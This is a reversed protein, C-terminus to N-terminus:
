SRSEKSVPRVCILSSTLFLGYRRIYRRLEGYSIYYQKGWSSVSLVCSGSSTYFLGTITVFHAHVNQNASPLLHPLRGPAKKGDSSYFMVGHRGRFNPFNPGISLIVPIDNSLSDRIASLMRGGTNLWMYHARYPLRRRLFFHNLSLSLAAGTCGFFPLTFTYRRNMLRAYDLYSEKSLPHDPSEAALTEPTSVSHKRTLYLCLDSLATNGCGFRSLRTDTGFPSTRPFWQQSGGYSFSAGDPVQIYSEKKLFISKIMHTNREAPTKFSNPASSSEQRCSERSWHPVM